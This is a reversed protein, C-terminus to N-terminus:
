APSRIRAGDITLGIWKTYGLPIFYWRELPLLRRVPEDQPQSHLANAASEARAPPLDPGLEKPVAWTAAMVEAPQARSLLGPMNVRDGRQTISGHV